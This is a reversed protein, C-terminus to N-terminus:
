SKLINIQGGNNLIELIEINKFTEFGESLGVDITIIHDNCYRTIKEHPTHGMVIAGEEAGLKKLVSDAKECRGLKTPNSLDRNWFMEGEPNVISYEEPYKSKFEVLTLHGLLYMRVLKVLNELRNNNEEVSESSLHHPLLAGHVFIFNGIKVIPQMNCAMKRTIQGGPRFLERRKIEGGLAKIHQESAYSFNGMVNMLEHNGLITIVRGGDIQSKKNLRFLYNLIKIEEAGQGCIKNGGRDCDLIDGVQVVYTNSGIWEGKNDIVQALQLVKLMANFDGHLDGIAIIREVGPYVAKINQCNDDIGLFNDLIPNDIRSAPKKLGISKNLIQRETNNSGAYQKIKQKYKKYKKRYYSNNDLNNM